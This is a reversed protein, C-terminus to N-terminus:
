VIAERGGDSLRLLGDYGAAGVRALARAFGYGIDDPRHADSGLMVPIGLAACRALIASEPYAEGIPHRWGATNLEVAAGSAAIAELAAALAAEVSSPDRPRTGFRKPLDLHGIVDFLGTAAAEAVLEYYRRYLRDVDRWVEGELSDALDFAEGDVFHVSGIVYDPPRARLMASAAELTVPTYDVEISFLVRVEPRAEDAARIAAAYEEFRAEDWWDVPDDYPPLVLHDAIGVERMGLRAARAAVDGPGGEGDSFRTHVHYDSPTRVV